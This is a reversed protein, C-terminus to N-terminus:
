RKQLFINLDPVASFVILLQNKSLYINRLSSLMNFPLRLRKQLKGTARQGRRRASRLIHSVSRKGHLSTPNGGAGSVCSKGVAIAFLRESKNM